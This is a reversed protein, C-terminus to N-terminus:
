LRHWSCQTCNRKVLGVALAGVTIAMGIAAIVPHRNGAMERMKQGQHVTHASHDLYSVTDAGCKPCKIWSM